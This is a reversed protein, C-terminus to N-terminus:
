QSTMALAGGQEGASGAEPPQHQIANGRLGPSSVGPVIPERMEARAYPAFIESFQTSSYRRGTTSIRRSSDEAMAATRGAPMGSELALDKNTSQRDTKPMFGVSVARATADGQRQRGPIAPAQFAGEKEPRREKRKPAANGNTPLAHLSGRVEVASGHVPVLRGRSGTVKLAARNSTAPITRPPQAVPVALLSSAMERRSQEADLRSKELRALNNRYRDSEPDAEIAQRFYQDALDHRGIGAYAIALGNYSAAAFEPELASNRFAAIASVYNGSAIEARGQEFQQSAFQRPETQNPIRIGAELRATKSQLLQCGGILMSCGIVAAIRSSAIPM